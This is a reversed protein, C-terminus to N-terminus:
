TFYPPFLLHVLVQTLLNIFFIRAVTLNLDFPAYLLAGQLISLHL